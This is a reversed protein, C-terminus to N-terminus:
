LVPKFMFNAQFSWTTWADNLRRASMNPYFGRRVYWAMKCVKVARENGARDTAVCATILTEKRGFRKDSEAWIPQRVLQRGTKWAIMKARYGKDYINTFPLNIPTDNGDLVVLNQDAFNKQRQLYGERQNYDSDSVAGPWLSATGIWGCLQTFVGGKFCNGNYYKSYTLRQLDADSFAYANINTMDWMVIRENPYKLEWKDKRLKKDEEFLAYVSWSQRARQEIQYKSNIAKVLYKNRPGYLKQCDWMRSLTRGWKYEFHMFYEEFWTLSTNRKMITDVNGDCIIFIYSLLQSMTGFGTRRKVEEDPLNLNVNPLHYSSIGRVKENKRKQPNVRFFQKNSQPLSPDRMHNELQAARKVMPNIPIAMNEPMQEFTQNLALMAHAADEHAIDMQAKFM